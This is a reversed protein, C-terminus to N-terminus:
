FVPTVPAMGTNESHQNTTVPTVVL